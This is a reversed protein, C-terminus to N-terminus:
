PAVVANPNFTQGTFNGNADVGANVTYDNVSVGPTPKDQRAGTDATNRTTIPKGNLLQNVTQGTMVFDHPITGRDTSSNYKM